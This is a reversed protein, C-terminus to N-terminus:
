PRSATRWRKRTAALRSEITTPSGCIRPCSFSCYAIAAATPAAPCTSWRQKWLDNETALRTRVSVLMASFATETPEAATSSARPMKSAKPSLVASSIPAPVIPSTVARCSIAWPTPDSITAFRM